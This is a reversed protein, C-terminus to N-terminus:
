QVCTHMPRADSFCSSSGPTRQSCGKQASSRRTAARPRMRQSLTLSKCRGSMAQWIAGKAAKLFKEFELHVSSPNNRSAGWARNLAWLYDSPILRWFDRSMSQPNFCMGRPEFTPVGHELDDTPDWGENHELHLVTTCLDPEDLHAGVVFCELGVPQVGPLKESLLSREMHLRILYLSSDCNYKQLFHVLKIIRNVENKPWSLQHETILTIFGELIQGTEMDTDTLTLEPPGSAVSLM